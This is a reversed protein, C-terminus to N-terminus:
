TAPPAQVPYGLEALLGGAVSEFQHVEESSLAQRWAGARREDPPSSTLQQQALRQEQSVLLTGDAAERGKAELLRERATAHYSLMCDDYPLELFRCVAQLTQRPEKVLAEFRVELYHRCSVGGQRGARVASAWYGALEAMDQSPAFWVGRLSHAVDRGDRIVHIMHAEPLTAQILPLHFCHHPSKDGWVPKGHHEAYLRYFARLGNGVSFPRVEALAHRYDDQSITLDQWTPLGVLLRLLEDPTAPLSGAARADALAMFFGTEAPIAIRPHADLMLRLLTTGSRAAGVIFPAPAHGASDRIRRGLANRLNQLFSM